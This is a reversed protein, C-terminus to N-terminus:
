LPHKHSIDQGGWRGESLLGGVVDECSVGGGVSLFRPAEADKEM